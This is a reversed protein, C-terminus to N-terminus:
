EGTYEKSTFSKNVWNRRNKWVWSRLKRPLKNLLPYAKTYRNLIYFTKGGNHSFAEPNRVNQWLGDTVENWENPNDTLPSLPKFQALQHVLQLTMSASAGSHRQKAFLKIINMVADAVLLNWGESPDEIDKINRLQERTPIPLGALALEREAHEVLMSKEKENNSM